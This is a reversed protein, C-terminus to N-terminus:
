VGDLARGDFEMDLVTHGSNILLGEASGVNRGRISDNVDDITYHEGLGYEGWWRFGLCGGRRLCWWSGLCRGSGLCWWSGLCAVADGHNGGGVRVEREQHINDGGSSEHVGDVEGTLEGDECGRVTREKLDKGIGSLKGVYVWRDKSGDKGVVNNGAQDLGAVNRIPENQGGGNSLGNFEVDLIINDSDVFLDDARDVNGGAGSAGAGTGSSSEIASSATPSASRDWNTSITVSAPKLSKTLRGPSNVTKAGVFAAKASTRGLGSSRLVM